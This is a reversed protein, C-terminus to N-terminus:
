GSSSLLRGPASPPPGMDRLAGQVARRERERTGGRLNGAVWGARELAIGGSRMWARAEADPQHLMAALWVAQAPALERASRGFYGRAAAEAGCLGAGWPANDLYLQLIRAKGLTQEMEVAYLLERLKRTASREDGTVLRKALQQGLTSAGRRVGGEAQNAQLAAQLERIDYGPHEFFRQDEAALVARVLWDRSQLRSPAGCSTSARAWAETGLGQVTFGELQPQMRLPGAPLQWSAQVKLRGGIRAQRLEPLDPALVAYADAIPTDPVRLQLALGDDQLRGTFWAQLAPGDDVGTDARVLGQVSEFDRFVAIQLRQLQLPTSGLASAPLRCPACQLHLSRDAPQWQLQVPGWRTRLRRGDLWRAFPAATAVRLVAPVSVATQWTGIRLPAAWEGPRPALLRLAVAGGLLLAVLLALLVAALTRLVPRLAKAPNM